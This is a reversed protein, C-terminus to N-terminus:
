GPTGHALKNLSNFSGPAFLVVRAAAGSPDGSDTFEVVAGVHSSPRSRRRERRCRHRHFGPRDARPESLRAATTTGSLVLYATSREAAARWATVGCCRTNRGSGRVHITRRRRARAVPASHWERAVRHATAPVIEPLARIM